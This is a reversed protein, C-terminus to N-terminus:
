GFDTFSESQEAAAAAALRKREAAAEEHKTLLLKASEISEDLWDLTDQLGYVDLRRTWLKQEDNLVELVESISPLFKQTRRLRRVGSEVAHKFFEGAMIEEILMGVYIEPDSPAGNPFSGLLLAAQKAIYARTPVFNSEPIVDKDGDPSFRELGKLIGAAQHKAGSVQFSNKAETARKLANELMWSDRSTQEFSYAQSDLVKVSHEIESLHKTFGSLGLVLEDFMKLPNHSHAGRSVAKDNATVVQTM